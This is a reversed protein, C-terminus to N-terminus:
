TCSDVSCCLARQNIPPLELNFPHCGTQFAVVRILSPLFLDTQHASNCATSRAAISLDPLPLLEHTQPKVSEHATALSRAMHDPLLAM